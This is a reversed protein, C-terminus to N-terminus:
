GSDSIIWPRVFCSRLPGRCYLLLDRPLFGAFIIARRQLIWPRHVVLPVTSIVLYKVGLKRSFITFVTERGSFDKIANRVIHLHITFKVYIRLVTVFICRWPSYFTNSRFRYMYVSVIKLDSYLGHEYHIGNRAEVMHGCRLIKRDKFITFSMGSKGKALWTAWIFKAGM